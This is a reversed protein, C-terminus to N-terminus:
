NKAGSARWPRSRGFHGFQDTDDALACVAHWTSHIELACIAHRVTNSCDGNKSRRSRLFPSLGRRNQSPKKTGSCSRKKRRPSAARRTTTRATSRWEPEPGRSRRVRRRRGGGAVPPTDILRHSSVNTKATGSSHAHPAPCSRASRNASAPRFTDAGLGAGGGAVVSAARRHLRAPPTRRAVLGDVVRVVLVEVEGSRRRHGPGGLIEVGRRPVGLM